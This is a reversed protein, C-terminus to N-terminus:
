SPNGYTCLQTLTHNLSLCSSNSYSSQNMSTEFLGKPLEHNDPFAQFRAIQQSGELAVFLNDHEGSSLFVADSPQKFSALKQEDFRVIEEFESGNWHLLYM